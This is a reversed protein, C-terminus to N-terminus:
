GNRAERIASTAFGAIAGAQLADAAARMRAVSAVLREVAEDPLRMSPFAAEALRLTDRERGVVTFAGDPRGDVVVLHITNSGVDLVALRM